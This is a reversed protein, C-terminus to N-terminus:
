IYRLVRRTTEPELAPSMVHLPNSVMSGDQNLRSDIKPLYQQDPSIKVLIVRPKNDLLKTELDQKSYGHSVEDFDLGFSRSLLQYDPMGLGTESDCGVYNGGFYKRQTTRISAYGDNDFLIIKIPLSNVAVTGLEQLNQLFGGDGELLWTLERNTFSAGIAGALGVGMSGLGKSSILTQSDKIEIVQMASTYTGGSSCPIYVLNKPSITSLWEIFEFQNIWGEIQTGPDVLPLSEKVDGVFHRWEDIRPKQLTAAFRKEFTSLFNPISSRVKISDPFNSEELSVPDIDVHLITAKPAFEQVNFGTQQYALTSGLVILLDCQQIVTNAWRQGFMNPRGAYLPNHSSIRDAGHWTTAIPVGFSNLIELSRSDGRPFGGGLLFLPRSSKSLLESIGFIDQFDDDLNLAHACFRTGTPLSDLNDIHAGQVDLCFELYTPGKRGSGACKVLGQLEIKSMPVELRSAHKTISTVIPVGDIEQVGRQRQANSKLDVSKVQGAIVLLERGDIFAGAIGSVTNTVGPGVTVLALAKGNKFNSNSSNENYYDAAIVASVEHIVPIMELQKSFSEILHMINGGAVFFCKSYGLEVLWDTVADSYKM